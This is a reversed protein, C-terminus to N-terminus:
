LMVIQQVVYLPEQLLLPTPPVPIAHVVVLEQMISHLVAYQRVKTATPPHLVGIFVFFIFM